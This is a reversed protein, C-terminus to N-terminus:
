AFQSGEDGEEPNAKDDNRLKISPADDSAKDDNRLKITISRGNAATAKAKMTAKRQEQAARCIDDTCHNKECWHLLETLDNKSLAAIVTKADANKIDALADDHITKGIQSRTPM